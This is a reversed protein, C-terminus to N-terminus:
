LTWLVLIPSVVAFALAKIGARLVEGAPPASSEDAVYLDAYYKSDGTVAAAFALPQGPFLELRSDHARESGLYAAGDATRKRGHVVVPEGARVLVEEHDAKETSKSCGSGTFMRAGEPDVRVDGTADSVVFPTDSYEQTLHTVGDEDEEIRHEYAACERGSLPATAPTPNATATGEISVLAGDAVDGLDAISTVSDNRLRRWIRFRDAAVAVSCGFVTVILIGVFLLAGVILVEVVM